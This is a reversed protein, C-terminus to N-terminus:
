RNDSIYDTILIHLDEWNVWMPYDYEDEYLCIADLLEDVHSFLFDQEMRIFNVNDHLFNYIAERKAIDWGNDFIEEPSLLLTKEKYLLFQKDLNNEYATLKKNFSASTTNTDM